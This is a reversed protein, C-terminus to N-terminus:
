FIIFALIMVASLSYRLKERKPEEPGGEEVERSGRLRLM